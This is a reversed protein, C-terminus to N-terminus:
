HALAGFLWYLFLTSLLNFIWYLTLGFYFIGFKVLWVKQSGELGQGLLINQFGFKRLKQFGLGLELIGQFSVGNGWNFQGSFEKGELGISGNNVPFSNLKFGRPFGIKNPIQNEKPLVL